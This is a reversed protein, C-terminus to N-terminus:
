RARSPAQSLSLPLQGYLLTRAVARLAHDGTKIGEIAHRDLVHEAVRGSSEVVAEFLEGIEPVAKGAAEYQALVADVNAMIVNFWGFNAGSMAYAAEVLGVPYDHALKRGEKLRAVYDSVDAFANHELEVLEFRRAVSQIERLQQGLLPSCLAVYRLWPLKRRPDEEKIAKGILRIAQGDLRKADDQELGFTAAEAVTELEDLVVLLHTIGFQQLYAYAAQVLRAVLGEEEYLAEESHGQALELCQALRSAEFGAPNLRHLAQEAIRSQISGDFRGTALPLLAKYLGFGFWNDSNQYISAVQSYRLYLALYSDGAVRDFLAQDALRGDADRVFWGRSADNIQAVLEHGLRSKGRGWEAEVAFVHAFNDAAQDVTHLFTRFRKFFRSQGVLPDRPPYDSVGTAAWAHRQSLSAVTDADLPTQTM